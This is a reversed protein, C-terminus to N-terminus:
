ECHYWTKINSFINKYVLKILYLIIVLLLRTFVFKILWKRDKDIYDIETENFQGM